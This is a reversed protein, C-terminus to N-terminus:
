VILQIGFLYPPEVHVPLRATTSYRDSAEPRQFLGGLQPHHLAALGAFLGQVVVPAGREQNSASVGSTNTLKPRHM